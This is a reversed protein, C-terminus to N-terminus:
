RGPRYVIGFQKVYEALPEFGVDARRDDVHVEDEIPYLRWDKWGAEKHVQTGYRQPRGENTRVRDDVMAPWMPVADHRDAAAQLAPLHKKQFALPAHDLILFAADAGALGALHVGPWGSRAVIADLQAQNRSDLPAQKEWVARVEPSDVGKETWLRMGEERFRQDDARLARLQAALSPDAPTVQKFSDILQFVRARAADRAARTEPEHEVPPSYGSTSDRVWFAGAILAIAGGVAAIPWGIILGVLVCAVGLAFGIPWLSPGSSPQQDRNPEVTL